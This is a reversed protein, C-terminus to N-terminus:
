CPWPNLLSMCITANRFVNEFTELLFVRCGVTSEIGMTLEIADEYQSHNFETNKSICLEAAICARRLRFCLGSREERVLEFTTMRPTGHIILSDFM